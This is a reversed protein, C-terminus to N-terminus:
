TLFIELQTITLSSSFGYCTLYNFRMRLQWTCFYSMMMSKEPWARLEESEHCSPCECAKSYRLVYFYIFSGHTSPGSIHTWNASGGTSTWRIDTRKPNTYNKRPTPLHTLVFFFIFVESFLSKFHFSARGCLHCSSFKLQIPFGSSSMKKRFHLLHLTIKIIFCHINITFDEALDGLCFNGAFEGSNVNQHVIHKIKM